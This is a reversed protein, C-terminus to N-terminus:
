DCRVTPPAIEYIVDGGVTNCNQDLKLFYGGTEQINPCDVIQVGKNLPVSAGSPDFGCRPTPTCVINGSPDIKHIFEDPNCNTINVLPHTSCTVARGVTHLAIDVVAKPTCDKEGAAISNESYRVRVTKQDPCEWQLPPITVTPYTAEYKSRDLCLEVIFDITGKGKGQWSFDLQWWGDPTPISISEGLYMGSAPILSGSCSPPVLKAANVASSTQYKKIYEQLGTNGAITCKIVEENDLLDTYFKLIAQRKDYLEEIKALALQNTALETALVAVVGSLAVAVMTGFLTLGQTM